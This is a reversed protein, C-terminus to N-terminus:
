WHMVAAVPVQLFTKGISPALLEVSMKLDTHKKLRHRLGAGLLAMGLLAAGGGLVMGLLGAM